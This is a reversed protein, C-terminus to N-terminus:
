VDDSGEHSGQPPPPPVENHPQSPQVPKEVEEESGQFSGQPPPPQSPEVPQEVEEEGRVNTNENQNVSPDSPVPAQDDSSVTDGHRPNSDEIEAEQRARMNQRTRLQFERFEKLTRYPFKQANPHPVKPYTQNSNDGSSSDTADPDFPGIIKVNGIQTHYTRKAKEKDNPTKRHDGGKPPDPNQM